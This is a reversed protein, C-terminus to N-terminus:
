IINAAVFRKLKVKYGLPDLIVQLRAVYEKGQEIEHKYPSIETNGGIRPNGDFGLVICPETIITKNGKDDESVIVWVHNIEGESKNQTFAEINKSLSEQSFGSLKFLEKLHYVIQKQKKTLMFIINIPGTGLPSFSM